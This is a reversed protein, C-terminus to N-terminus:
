FIYVLWIEKPRSTNQFTRVNKMYDPLNRNSPNIPEVPRAIILGTQQGYFM